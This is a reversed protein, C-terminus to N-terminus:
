GLQLKCRKLYSDKIRKEIIQRIESLTENKISRFRPTEPTSRILDIIDTPETIVQENEM